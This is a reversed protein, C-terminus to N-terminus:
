NEPHCRARALALARDLARAVVDVAHSRAPPLGGLDEIRRALDPADGSALTHGEIAECAVSAVALTASCGRALFGARTVVDGTVELAIEVLDGCVQNEGRGVLEGPPPAGGGHPAQLHKQLPEPLLGVAPVSARDGRLRLEKRGLAKPATREISAFSGPSPTQACHL